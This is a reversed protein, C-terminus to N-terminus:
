QGQRRNRPQRHPDEGLLRRAAVRGCFGLANKQQAVTPRKLAAHAYGIVSVLDENGAALDTHARRFDEAHTAVQPFDVLALPVEDPQVVHLVPEIKRLPAMLHSQKVLGGLFQGFRHDQVRGM